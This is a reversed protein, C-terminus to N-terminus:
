DQTFGCNIVFAGSFDTVNQTVNQTVPGGGGGALLEYRGDARREFAVMDGAKLIGSHCIAMLIPIGTSREGSWVEVDAVSGRGWPWAAQVLATGREPAGAGPRIEGPRRKLEDVAAAVGRVVSRERALDGARM